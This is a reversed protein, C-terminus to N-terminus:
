ITHWSSLLIMMLPARIAMRLSMMTTQGITNCDNTLRTILSSVSFKDLNAFSFGQVKKFVEKRIEAAFGYGARAGSYSSLIGFTMGLLAAIIMVSGIKVVYDIDQNKIGIDVIKSMLYPIIFTQGTSGIDDSYPM